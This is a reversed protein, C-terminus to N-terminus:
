LKSRAAGVWWRPSAHRVPSSWSFGRAGFAELLAFGRARCVIGDTYLVGAARTSQFKFKSDSQEVGESVRACHTRRPANSERGRPCRRPARM